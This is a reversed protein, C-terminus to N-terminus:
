QYTKLYTRVKCVFHAYTFNNLIIFCKYKTMENEGSYMYIISQIIKYECATKIILKSVFGMPPSYIFQIFSIFKPFASRFFFGPHQSFLSFLKNSCLLQILQTEPPLQLLWVKGICTFTYRPQTEKASNINLFLSAINPNQYSLQHNNQERLGLIYSVHLFFFFFFSFHHLFFYFVSLFFYHLLQVFIQLHYVAPYHCPLNHFVVLM